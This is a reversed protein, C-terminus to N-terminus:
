DEVPSYSPERLQAAIAREIWKGFFMGKDQSSTKAAVYLTEPIMVNVQRFGPQTMPVERPISSNTLDYSAGLELIWKREAQAPNESVTELIDMVPELGSQRIADIIQIKRKNDRINRAHSHARLRENPQVTVGVYFPRSDRPDRLAYVHWKNARNM